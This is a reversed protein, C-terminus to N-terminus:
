DKDTAVSIGLKIWRLRIRFINRYPTIQCDPECKQTVASEVAFFKCGM